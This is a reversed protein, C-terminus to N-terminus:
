LNVFAARYGVFWSSYARPNNLNLAFVGARSSDYWTGGRLPLREGYNRVWLGDGDHGGETANLPYMGLVKALEPVTVGEKVGLSEFTQSQHGYYADVDGGTYQPNNRLTSLVMSGGLYHDTQTADGAILSDYKLTGAPGPVVLTGDQLMARWLSSEPGEDVGAAANNDPIVQIEGNKLRFGSVWEM